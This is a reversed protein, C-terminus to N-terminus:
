RGGRKHRYYFCDKVLDRVSNIAAEPTAEKGPLSTGDLIPYWIVTGGTNVTAQRAIIACRDGCGDCEIFKENKNVYGM